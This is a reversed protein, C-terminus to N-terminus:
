WSGGGGGGFGGGSFGGGGSSGSGGSSQPVTGFASQIDQVSSELSSGFSAFGHVGGFRGGSTTYWGPPEIQLGDFKESWKKAYGFVMAYPLTKEFYSADEELMRELKDKEATKVFTRFGRVKQYYQVGTQNRKIMFYSFFFGAVAVLFLSIAVWIQELFVISLGGALLCLFSAIYSYVQVDLSVPYYVGMNKVHDSLLTKAQTLTEHFSGKLKSVLVTDGSAFIGNFLVREYDHATAPLEKLKKLEHDDPAWSIEVQKISLFGQMAWYPLLAILDRFDAMDDILVGAVSPTMAEPPRYAVVDVVLYDKGYLWWTRFFALFLAVFLVVGISLNGYKDWWMEWPGPRRVFHKPLRLFVTLGENPAYTRTSKGSLKGGEWGFVVDQGREGRLGSVVGYDTSDLKISSGLDVLFEVSDVSVPWSDGLLNWYFETHNEELLFAKQVRYRIRYTQRGEVWLDKSGIKIVYNSGETYTDFDFGEVEVDRIQIQVKKGDRRYQYPIERFIGHRRESFDVQIVEEVLFSADEGHLIVSVNYNRIVFYEARVVAASLTFLLILSGTLCATFSRMSQNFLTSVPNFNFLRTRGSLM